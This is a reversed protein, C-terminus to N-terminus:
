SPIPHTSELLWVDLQEVHTGPTRVHVADELTPFVLGTLVVRENVFIEIASGDVFIRVSFKM